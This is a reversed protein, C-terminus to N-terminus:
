FTLILRFLLIVLFTEKLIDLTQISLPDDSHWKPNLRM